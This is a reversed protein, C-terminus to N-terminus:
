GRGLVGFHFRMTCTPCARDYIAASIMEGCGASASRSLSHNGKGISRGPPFRRASQRLEHGAGRDRNSGFFSQKGRLGGGIHPARNSQKTRLARPGTEDGVSDRRRRRSNFRRSLHLSGVRSQESYLQRPQRALIERWESIATNVRARNM